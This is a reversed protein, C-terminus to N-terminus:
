NLRVVFTATVQPERKLKEALELAGALTAARGVRVRYYNGDPADYTQIFVDRFKAELQKQFRRANEEVKFAGAQVAYQAPHRADDAPREVIDLRVLATGPGIMKIAEAAARSLDIIRGEIFPGRDNIRVTTTLHNELNTVRVVTNFPLTRHAATLKNMDYIEGNSTPRGHYPHGYWSALGTEAEGAAPPAPQPIPRAKPRRRCGGAGVALAALLAVLLLRRALSRPRSVVSQVGAPAPVTEGHTANRRWGARPKHPDHFFEM